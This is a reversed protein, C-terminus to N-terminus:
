AVGEVFLEAVVAVLVHEQAPLKLAGMDGDGVDIVGNEEVLELGVVEEKGLGFFPQAGEMGEATLKLPM